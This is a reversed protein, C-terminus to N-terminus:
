ETTPGTYEPGTWNWPDRCVTRCAASVSPAFEGDSQGIGARFPQARLGSGRDRGHFGQGDAGEPRLSANLAPTLSLAGIVQWGALILVALSAFPWPAARSPNATACASLVSRFALRVPMGGREVPTTRQRAEIRCAPTPVELRAVGDRHTCARRDSMGEVGNVGRSGAARRPAKGHLAQQSGLGKTQDHAAMDQRLPISSSTVAACAVPMGSVWRAGLVASARSRSVSGQPGRPAGCWRSRCGASPVAPISSGCDVLDVLPPMMVGLGQPVRLPRLRDFQRSLESGPCRSVDERGCIDRPVALGDPTWPGRRASARADGQGRRGARAPSGSVLRSWACRSFSSSSSAFGCPAPATPLHVTM